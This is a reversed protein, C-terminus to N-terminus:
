HGVRDTVAVRHTAATPAWAREVAALVDSVSIELLGPDPEDAHTDGPRGSWLVEHPGDAPPGWQVPSTPGFLVVSPTRYATALHAVGTDGSLVLRADAVLAALDDLGLEGALCRSDPLGAARVLALALPREAAGGTVVVPASHDALEAAVAAFREVPWRRAGASAGPHVVVAQPAVSRVEPRPLRLDGPDAVLGGYELLRCWREVQHLDDRWELGPVRRHLPHWHTLIQEPAASLLDAISQPGRGHLNVALQPGPRPWDRHGLGSVPWWRDVGLGLPQLPRLWNPAALTILSEPHARRLSRLAPVATLLDGLGLARLVLIEPRSVSRSGGILAM